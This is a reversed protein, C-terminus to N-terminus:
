NAKPYETIELLLGAPDRVNAALQGWPKLHPPVISIAGAEIAKQYVNDVNQVHFSIEFAQLPSHTSNKQFNQQLSLAAMEESRFALTVESSILEAFHGSEHVFSPVLDFAQTYFSLIGLVDKVYFIVYPLGVLKNSPANQM